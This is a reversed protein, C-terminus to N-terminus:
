FQNLKSGIGYRSSEKLM